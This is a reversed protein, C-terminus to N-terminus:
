LVGKRHLYDMVHAMRDAPLRTDSYGSEADEYECIGGYRECAEQFAPLHYAGDTDKIKKEPIKMDCAAHVMEHFVTNVVAEDIGHREYYDENIMICGYGYVGAADPSHQVHWDSMFYMNVVRPMGETTKLSDYIAFYVTYLADPVRKAGRTKLKEEAKKWRLWAKYAKSDDVDQRSRGGTPRPLKKEEEQWAEYAEKCEQRLEAETLM